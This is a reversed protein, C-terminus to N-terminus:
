DGQDLIAALLDEGTPTLRYNAYGHAVQRRLLGAQWLIRLNRSTNSQEMDAILCLDSVCAHGADRVLKLLILRNGDALARGKVALDDATGAPLLERRLRDAQGPNM